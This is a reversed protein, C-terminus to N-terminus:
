ASWRLRTANTQRARCITEVLLCRDTARLESKGIVDLLVLRFLSEMGDGYAGHARLRLRIPAAADAIVLEAEANVAANVLWVDHVRAGMSNAPMPHYRGVYAGGACLNAPLAILSGRQWGFLSTRGGLGQPTIMPPSARHADEGPKENPVPSYM